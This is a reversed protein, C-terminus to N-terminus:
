GENRGHASNGLYVRKRRVVAARVATMGFKHGVARHAGAKVERILVAGHASLRHILVSVIYRELSEEAEVALLRRIYVQVEGSVNLTLYM